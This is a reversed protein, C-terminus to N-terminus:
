ISAHPVSEIHYTQDSRQRGRGPRSIRVGKFELRALANAIVTRASIPGGDELNGYMHDLVQKMTKPGSLLFDYVRQELPSLSKAKMQLASGCHPCIIAAM